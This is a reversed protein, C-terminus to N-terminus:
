SALTLESVVAELLKQRKERSAALQTELVDVLAMLQEVKAVIRCQEAYPPLPVPLGRCQTLSINDQGASGRTEAGVLASLDHVQLLCLCLYKGAVGALPHFVAIAQNINWEPYASTVISVKGLPPGVINMLVDGPTVSSRALETAHTARSVFTPSITFNLEGNFTLNYVKLFPVEGDDSRMKTKAPTTGKTIYGCIQEARYWCWGSPLRPLDIDPFGQPEEYKKPWHSAQEKRFSSLLDSAPENEPDQPVLKGQVALTLISKRLDSPPIAYSPHFIFHLNAPTPTAAFRALSARALAAHRTEQEQQQAELQDCLAMLEDVKAVIRKQEALPPVMVELADVIGKNIHPQASGLSKAVVAPRIARLHYFLYEPVLQESPFIGTVSQNTSCPFDLIGVRGTTAGTLAIVVTNRPFLRASSNDLGLQTIHESPERIICDELAGSNIWPIEGGIWYDDRHRSPTGGSQTVALKAIPAKKWARAALDNQVEATTTSPLGNSSHNATLKGQIALHLILERMKVVADPADALEHFKEFFTELKM